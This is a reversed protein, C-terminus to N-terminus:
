RDSQCGQKYIWGAKEMARGEDNDGGEWVRGMTYGYGFLIGPYAFPIGVSSDSAIRGAKYVNDM